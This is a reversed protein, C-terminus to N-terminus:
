GDQGGNMKKAAEKIAERIKPYTGCKCLNGSMSRDIDQDTPNKNKTLMAVASMIQGPQCYGCQAVQNKIWSQQVPHLNKDNSIGEITTIDGSVDGVQISCSRVALGDIHVTCAGCMATGCGYKPGTIGLKDRLAWLLPMKSDADLTEEKGNVTLKM